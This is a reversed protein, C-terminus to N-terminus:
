RETYFTHSTATITTAAKHLTHNTHPPSLQCVRVETLVTQSGREEKKATQPMRLAFCVFEEGGENIEM